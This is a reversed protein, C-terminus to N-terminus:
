AVAAAPAKLGIAFVSDRAMVANWLVSDVQDSWRRTSSPPAVALLARTPPPTAVGTVSDPTCGGIAGVVALLSVSCIRRICKVVPYLM